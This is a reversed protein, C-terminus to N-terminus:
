RVSLDDADDAFATQRWDSPCIFYQGEDASVLNLAQSHFM